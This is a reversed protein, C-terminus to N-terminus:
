KLIIFENKDLDIYSDLNILEKSKPDYIKDIYHKDILEKLTIIKNECNSDNYCNQSAEIVKKEIVLYMSDYHSNLIFIAAPVIILLVIIIILIININNIKKKEM